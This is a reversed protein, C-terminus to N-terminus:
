ILRAYESVKNWAEKYQEFGRLSKPVTIYYKRDKLYFRGNKKVETKMEANSLVLYTYEGRKTEVVIVYVPGSQELFEIENIHTGSNGIYVSKAQVAAMKLPYNQSLAFIDVPAGEPGKAPLWGEQILKVMVMHEAHPGRSRSQTKRKRIQKEVNNKLRWLLSKQRLITLPCVVEM